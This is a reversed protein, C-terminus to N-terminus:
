NNQIYIIYNMFENFVNDIQNISEIEIIWNQYTINAIESYDNIAEIISEENYISTNINFKKKSM